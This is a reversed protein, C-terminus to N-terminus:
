LVNLQSEAELLALLESDPLRQLMKAYEKQDTKTLTDKTPTYFGSLLALQKIAAVMLDPRSQVRALECAEALSLLIREFSLNLNISTAAEKARLIAKVNAYTLLRSATTKASAPNPSYGARIDAQAGNRDILYEECFRQQKYRHNM